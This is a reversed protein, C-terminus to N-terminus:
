SKVLVGQALGPSEWTELLLPGGVDDCKFGLLVHRLPGWLLQDPSNVWYVM